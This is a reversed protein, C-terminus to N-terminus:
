GELPDRYPMCGGNGSEIMRGEGGGREGGIGGRGGGLSRMVGREGTIISTSISPFCESISM